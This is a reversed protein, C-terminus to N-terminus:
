ATAPGSTAAFAAQVRMPLETVRDTPRTRRPRARTARRARPPACAHTGRADICAHRHERRQFDSPTVWTNPKGPVCVTGNNSAKRRLRSAVTTGVCSSAALKMAPANKRAEASRCDQERNRARAKRVCQGAQGFRSEVRRRHDVDHGGAVFPGVCAERQLGDRLGAQGDVKRLGHQSDIGKGLDCRRHVPCMCQGRGSFRPRHHHQQAVRGFGARASALAPRARRQSGSRCTCSSTQGCANRSGTARHDERPLPHM